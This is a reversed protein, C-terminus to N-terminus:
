RERPLSEREPLFAVTLAEGSGYLEEFSKCNSQIDGLTGCEDAVTDFFSGTGTSSCFFEAKCAEYFEDCYSGKMPAHYIQWSNGTGNASAACDASRAHRPACRCARRRRCRLRLPTAACARVDIILVELRRAATWSRSPTSEVAEPKPSATRVAASALPHGSHLGRAHPRQTESAPM